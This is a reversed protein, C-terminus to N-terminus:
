GSQKKGISVGQKALENEWLVKVNETCHAMADEWTPWRKNDAYFHYQYYLSQQNHPMEPMHSTACEPCTGLRAPLLTMGGVTGPKDEIMTVKDKRGILNDRACLAQKRINAVEKESFMGSKIANTLSFEHNKCTFMLADDIDEVTLIINGDFARGKVEHGQPCRYPKERKKTKTPM